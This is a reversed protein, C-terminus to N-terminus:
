PTVIPKAPTVPTVDSADRAELVAIAERAEPQRAFNGLVEGTVIEVVNYSNGDYRTVYRAPRISPEPLELNPPWLPVFGVDCRISGRDNAGFVLVFFQICHDASHVEVRSGPQLKWVVNHWFEPKLAERWDQGEPMVYAYESRVADAPWLGRPTNSNM